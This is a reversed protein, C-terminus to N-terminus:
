IFPILPSHDAIAELMKVKAEIDTTERLVKKIQEPLALLMLAGGCRDIADSERKAWREKEARTM